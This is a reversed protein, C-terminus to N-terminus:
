NRGYKLLLGAVLAGMGAVLLGVMNTHFERQEAPSVWANLATNDGYQFFVTHNEGRQRYAPDNSMRHGAMGNAVAFYVAAALAVAFVAQLALRLM